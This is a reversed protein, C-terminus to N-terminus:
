TNRKKPQEEEEKNEMYIRDDSFNPPNKLTSMEFTKNTELSQYVEQLTSTNKPPNLLRRIFMLSKRKGRLKRREEKTMEKKVPNAEKSNEEKKQEPKNQNQKPIEPPEIKIM